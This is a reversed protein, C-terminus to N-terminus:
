CAGVLPASPEAINSVEEIQRKARQRLDIVRPLLLDVAQGIFEVVPSESKDRARNRAQRRGFARARQPLRYEVQTCGGVFPDFKQSQNVSPKRAADVGSSKTRNHVAM